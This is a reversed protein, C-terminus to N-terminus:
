PAAPAAPIVGCRNELEKDLLEFLKDSKGDPDGLEAFGYARMWWSAMEPVYSALLRPKTAMFFDSAVDSLTTPFKELWYERPNPLANGEPTIFFHYILDAGEIAYEVHFSTYILIKKFKPVAKEITEVSREDNSGATTLLEKAKTPEVHSYNM